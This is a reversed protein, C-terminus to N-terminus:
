ARKALRCYRGGPLAEIKGQIELQLLMSSLEAATLGTSKVLSDFDVPAFDLSRSLVEPLEPIDVASCVTTSGTTVARLRPAIEVLIDDIDEALAAGSRLLKHCGKSLPNHISGPVAFVERGYEAALRATILSGSRRTAEIVLTGLSLAAIIRNRRPFQWTRVPTGPPYESVIVGDAAISAGLKRNATPYIADIGSGLVAVTGAIGQLAGHHSAADIGRALGSTVTLGALSLERSFSEAINRGNATPSRSGVVALQPGQLLEPRRGSAWLAAPHGPIEALAQPYMSSGAPILLNGPTDLWRQWSDPVAPNSGGTTVAAILSLQDPFDPTESPTSSASKGLPKWSSPM